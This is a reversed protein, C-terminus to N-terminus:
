FHSPLVRAQSRVCLIATVEVPKRKARYIGSQTSFFQAIQFCWHTSDFDGCFAQERAFPGFFPWVLLLFFFKVVIIMRSWDFVTCVFHPSGEGKDSFASHSAWAEMRM